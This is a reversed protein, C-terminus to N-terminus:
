RGMAVAIDELGLRKMKKYLTTRNIGLAEATINRNWNNSELVERIIQREPSELAQKLSRGAVSEVSVGGVAMMSPPLDDVGIV